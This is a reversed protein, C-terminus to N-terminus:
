SILYSYLTGNDKRSSQYPAAVNKSLESIIESIVSDDDAIWILLPNNGYLRTTKLIEKRLTSIYSQRTFQMSTIDHNSESIEFGMSVNYEIAHKNETLVTIETSDWNLLEYGFEMLIYGALVPYPSFLLAEDWIFLGAESTRTQWNINKDNILGIPKDEAIILYYSNHINNISNFWDIQEEKSIEKRYVMRRMIEKSNRKERILELDQRVIKKLQIGYKNLQM